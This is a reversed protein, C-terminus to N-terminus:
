KIYVITVNNLSAGQEIFSVDARLPYTPGPDVHEYFVDPMCEEGPTCTGIVRSFAIHAHSPNNADGDLLDTVEIRFRDGAEYTGFSSGNNALVKNEVVYIQGNSGCSGFPPRHSPDDDM